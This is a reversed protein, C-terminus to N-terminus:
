PASEPPPELMAHRAATESASSAQRSLCDRMLEERAFDEFKRQWCVQHYERTLWDNNKTFKLIAKGCYKCIRKVEDM